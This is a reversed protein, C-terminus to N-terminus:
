IEETLVSVVWEMSPGQDTPIPGLVRKVVLDIVELDGRPSELSDRVQGILEDFFEPGDPSFIAVGYESQVLGEGFDIQRSACVIGPEDGVVERARQTLLARLESPSPM